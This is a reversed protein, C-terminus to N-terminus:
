TLIMADKGFRHLGEIRTPRSNASPMPILFQIVKERM